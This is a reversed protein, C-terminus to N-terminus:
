PEVDQIWIDSTFEFNGTPFLWMGQIRKNYVAVNDPYWLSVYPLDESVVRQIDAYYQKRVQLDAERRALEIWQDVQPNSYRSRNAGNPPVLDSHFIFNFHDPDNNGGIWRLSYLQFNGALVDAFFTAFENSRIEMDIGIERFQEQLVAAVLRGTEDQSTRYTFSLNTYGAEDLIARARAPDYPYRSVDESYAWNEPPLVSDARRAQNRWLYRIISDRDIAYALAERVRVDRFLPDELNFALYQYNTGDSQLVSLGPDDRLVEVMDAPLANVVIDVSGARLELGRVVAEPVIKFRITDLRPPDGYYDQNSRLVVETDSLYHEFAFPGSGMPNAAIESGSEDPMIAIAVLNWLFPAFPESLRFEVTLDDLAEISEILNLVTAGKATQVTGDMMTRFSYVVDAAGVPRGDHFRVDDRLHFVYTTPNPTEWSEALDPELEMSETRHVLFSYVLEFLRESTADNGIRPDLNTPGSEIAITVMDSPGFGACGAVLFVGLVQVRTMVAFLRMTGINARYWSCAQSSKTRKRSKPGKSRKDSSVVM